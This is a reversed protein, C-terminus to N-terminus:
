SPAIEDALACLSKYYEDKSLGLVSAGFIEADDASAFEGYNVLVLQYLVLFPVRQLQTAYYPHVCITFGDEPQQGKPMPHAFEGDMLPGADFAISCPYRVFTRDELILRLENWGIQPGYKARIEEGKAAVHGALSQRADEITLQKPM